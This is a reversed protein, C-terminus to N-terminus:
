SRAERAALVERLTERDTIWASRLREFLRASKRRERREVEGAIIAATVFALALGAIVTIRYPTDWAVAIALCSFMLVSFSAAIAFIAMARVRRRLLTGAAQLEETALDAYGLAHRALVPAIRPLAAVINM